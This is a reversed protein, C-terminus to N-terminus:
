LHDFINLYLGKFRKKFKEFQKPNSRYIEMHKKYPDTAISLIYDTSDTYTSVKIALKYLRYFRYRPCIGKFHNGKQKFDIVRFCYAAIETLDYGGTDLQELSFGKPADFEFLSHYNSQLLNNYIGQNSERRKSKGKNSAVVMGGIAAIAGILWFMWENEKIWQIVTYFNSTHM